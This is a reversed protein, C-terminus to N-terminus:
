TAAKKQTDTIPRPDCFARIDRIRGHVIRFWDFIPIVLGALYAEVVRITDDRGM